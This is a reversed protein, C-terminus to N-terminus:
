TADHRRLFEDVCGRVIETITEPTAGDWHYSFGDAELDDFACDLLYIDFLDRRRDDSICLKGVARVAERLELDDDRVRRLQEAAWTRVAIDKSVATVGLDRLAQDRMAALEFHNHPPTMGALMAVHLSDCGTSVLSIAWDVCSQGCTMELFKEAIIQTTTPPSLTAM